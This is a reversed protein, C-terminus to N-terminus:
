TITQGKSDGCSRLDDCQIRAKRRSSSDYSRKIQGWGNYAAFSIFTLRGNLATDVASPINFCVRQIFEGRKARDYVDEFLTKNDSIPNFGTGMAGLKSFVASYPKGQVCKVTNAGAEAGGCDLKKSLAYWNASSVAKTARVEGRGMLATGSSLIFGNVIPDHKYAFAYDDCSMSGASHGTITIRKPDGGFAEINDRTWEIALRQDLLGPNPDSLTPAGPFGFVNVRYNISVVVIDQFNAM